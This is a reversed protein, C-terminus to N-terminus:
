FGKSIWSEHPKSLLALLARTNNERVTKEKFYDLLRGGIREYQEFIMM